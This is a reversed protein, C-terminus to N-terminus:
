ASSTIEAQTEIKTRIHSEQHFLAAQEISNNAISNSFALLEEQEEKKVKKGNDLVDLNNLITELYKALAKMDKKEIPAATYLQELYQARSLFRPVGTKITKKGAELSQIFDITEKLVTKWQEFVNREVKLEPLEENGGLLYWTLKNALLGLSIVSTAINQERASKM